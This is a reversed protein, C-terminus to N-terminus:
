DVDDMREVLARLSKRDLAALRRFADPEQRIRFRISAPVKDAMILLEDEDARLEDALKHIFKESPFEGFPLKANEVNNVYSQSVGLRNALEKQTLGAEDRLNRIKEGFEM